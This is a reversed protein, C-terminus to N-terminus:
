VPAPSCAEFCQEISAIFTRTNLPKPIFEVCGTEFAKEKLKETPNATVAIVPIDKTKPEGKLIETAALGDMGPLSIDMLILNPRYRRAMDIGTEADVAELVKYQGTELIARILKMNSLNDEIVLISKAKM